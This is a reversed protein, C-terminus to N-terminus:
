TDLGSCPCVAVSWTHAYRCLCGRERVEDCMQRKPPRVSVVQNSDQNQKKFAHLLTM